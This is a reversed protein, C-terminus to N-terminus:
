SSHAASTVAHDSIKSEDLAPLPHLMVVHQQSECGFPKLNKADPKGSLKGGMEGSGYEAPRRSRLPYM